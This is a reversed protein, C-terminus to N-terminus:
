RRKIQLNSIIERKITKCIKKNNNNKQIIALHKMRIKNKDLQKNIKCNNVLKYIMIM